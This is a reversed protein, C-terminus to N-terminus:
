YTWWSPCILLLGFCFIIIKTLSVSLVNYDSTIVVDSVDNM